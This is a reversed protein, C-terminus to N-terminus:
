WLLKLVFKQICIKWIILQLQKQGFLCKYMGRCDHFDIQNNLTELICVCLNYDIKCQNLSYFISFVDDMLTHAPHGNLSEKIYFHPEAIIAIDNTSLTKITPAWQKYGTHRYGVNPFTSIEHLPASGNFIFEGDIFYLDHFVITKGASSQFIQYTTENM